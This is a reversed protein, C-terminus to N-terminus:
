MSLLNTMVCTMAALYIFTLFGNTGNTFTVFGLPQGFLGATAQMYLLHASLLHRTCAKRAEQHAEMEDTLASPVEAAAWDWQDPHKAMHRCANSSATVSGIEKGSRLPQCCGKRTRELGAELLCRAVAMPRIENSFGAKLSLKSIDHFPTTGLRLIQASSIM